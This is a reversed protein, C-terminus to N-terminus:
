LLLINLICFGRKNLPRQGKGLRTCWYIVMAEGEREGCSTVPATLEGPHLNQKQWQHYEGVSSAIHHADDYYHLLTTM